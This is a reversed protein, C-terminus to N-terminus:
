RAAIDYCLLIDQDRIYLKKNAIVPHPWARQKSRDPQKFNGKEEYGKPTAGALYLAGGENRVYLQGDAYMISGKGPAKENWAVEGSALEMCTLGANDTAAYIHDGVLVVGGHHVQFQDNAYIQEASFDGGAGTIKFANCGVGYGSTVFVINDKVVPTPVVATKGRRDARWLLKGDMSIGALSRDTLQIYQSTEGITAKILPAYHASDTFEATQWLRDGTLKDLAVVTGTKGGPTLLLKDGDILPGQTYGWGPTRGSFDKSLSKRWIEKGDATDLCVVEGHQNLAYLRNADISPTARPGHYGGREGAQGIRTDWLIKGSNDADLCFAYSGDSKDGLTYIRNGVVALSSFGAGIGGAKWALPPGEGPWQKLLGVERSIGDRTPGRWQPWDDARSISSLAVICCLGVSSVTRFFM